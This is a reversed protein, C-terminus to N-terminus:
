ARLSQWPGRIAITRGPDKQINAFLTRGDASFCAGAWESITTGAIHYLRGDPTLGVLRQSDQDCDECIILDGWPSMVINDPMELAGAVTAEFVLMIQGGEDPTSGPIYKFIQGLSEAGGSTCTFYIGDPATVIGEGRVFIAAGKSQAEEAVTNEDPDPEDITVWDCDHARGPELPEDTTHKRGDTFTLAQLTGGEMLRGGTRPIYRYFCGETNDETEYVVGSADVAIAEHNFRGMAKIPEIRMLPNMPDVEFAYGHRKGMEWGDYGAEECSVWTGWPTIGGSCNRITGTLSLHHKLVNLDADLWITTTGGASAPDYAMDPVPSPPDKPFFLPMEHNRVLITEGNPGEFAGMGDHYGPVELGDSMIEGAMSIVKYTFGEPLDVIGNPDPKLGPGLKPREASGCASLSLLTAGLTGPVLMAGGTGAVAALFGRRNFRNAMM